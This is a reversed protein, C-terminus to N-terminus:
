KHAGVGSTLGGARDLEGAVHIVVGGGRHVWQYHFGHQGVEHCLEAVGGAVAVLEAPRRVRGHLLRALLNGGEDACLGLLNNEGGARGFAVIKGDGSHSSGAAVLPVVDDGYNG